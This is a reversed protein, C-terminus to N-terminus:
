FTQFMKLIFYHQVSQKSNVPIHKMQGLDLLWQAKKDETKVKDAQYKRLNYRSNKVVVCGLQKDILWMKQEFKHLKSKWAVNSTYLLTPWM